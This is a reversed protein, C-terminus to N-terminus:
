HIKVSHFNRIKESQCEIIKIKILSFRSHTKLYDEIILLLNIKKKKGRFKVMKYNQFIKQSLLNYLYHLHKLGTYTNNDILLLIKCFIGPLNM